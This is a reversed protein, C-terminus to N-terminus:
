GHFGYILFIFALIRDEIAGYRGEFSQLGDSTSHGNGKSGNSPAHEARMPIRLVTLTRLILYLNHWIIPESIGPSCSSTSCDPPFLLICSWYRIRLMLLAVSHCFSPLPRHISLAPIPKDKRGKGSKCYLRRCLLVSSIDLFIGCASSFSGKHSFPRRNDRCVKISLSEASSIM